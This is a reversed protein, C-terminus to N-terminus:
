IKRLEQIVTDDLRLDTVAISTGPINDPMRQIYILFTALLGWDDPDIKYFLMQVAADNFLNFLVILHNLILREKLEDNKKYRTFLKKLYLFKKLDEEFESVTSCQPNDYNHMAYHLFETESKFMVNHTTYNFETLQPLQQDQQQM